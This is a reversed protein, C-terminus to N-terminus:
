SCSVDHLAVGGEEGGGGEAELYVRPKGWGAALFYSCCM